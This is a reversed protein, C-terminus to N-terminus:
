KMSGKESFGFGLQQNNCRMQYLVQAHYDHSLSWRTEARYESFHAQETLGPFATKGHLICKM